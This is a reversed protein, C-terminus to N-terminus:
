GLINIPIILPLSRGTVSIKLLLENKAAVIEGATLTFAASTGPM